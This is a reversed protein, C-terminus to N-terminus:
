HVSYWERANRLSEATEDCSGERPPQNCETNTAPCLHRGGGSHNTGLGQVCLSGASGTGAGHSGGTACRDQRGFCDGVPCHVLGSEDFVLYLGKQAPKGHGTPLNSFSFVVTSYIGSLSCIACLFIAINRAVPHQTLSKDGQPNDDLLAAFSATATLVSVVIYSDFSDLRTDNHQAPATRENEPEHDDDRYDEDFEEDYLEDFLSDDDFDDVDSSDEIDSELNYYRKHYQNCENHEQNSESCSTDLMEPYAEEERYSESITSTVSATCEYDDASISINNLDM